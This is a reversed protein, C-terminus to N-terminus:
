GFAICFLFSEVILGRPPLIFWDVILRRFLFTFFLNIVLTLFTIIIKFKKAVTGVSELGYFSKSTM